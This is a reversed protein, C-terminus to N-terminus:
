RSISKFLQPLRFVFGMSKTMMWAIPRTRAHFALCIYSTVAYSIVTAVAAGWAGYVPILWLNLLINCVAGALQSFLSFQAFKESVLWQSLLVRMFIFVSAFIHLQLIAASEQYQEGFLLAILAPSIFYIGASLVLAAIFLGDFGRQLIALYRTQSQKAIELLKPFMATIVIQPLVYWVESLKAAVSYIGVQQAGAMSELMLIDIKLYIVSALGSFILFRTQAFIDSFVAQDYHGKIATDRYKQYLLRYGINRSLVEIVVVLALAIFSQFYLVAVLKTIAFVSFNSVRWVVLHKNMSKHQFWREFVEFANSINALLLLSLLQFKWHNGFVAYLILAAVLTLCIGAIFRAKLCTQLIDSIRTPQRSFERLLVNTMGLAFLPAFLAVFSLVYNYRGFDEPGLLRAFLVSLVLGGGMLIIKELLLWFSNQLILRKASNM